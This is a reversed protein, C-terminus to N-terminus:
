GTEFASQPSGNGFGVAGREGMRLRLERKRLTPEGIRSRGPRDGPEVIFRTAGDEIIVRSRSRRYVDQVCADSGPLRPRFRRQPEGDRFLLM